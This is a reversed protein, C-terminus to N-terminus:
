VTDDTTTEGLNGTITGPLVGGSLRDEVKSKPVTEGRFFSPSGLRQIYMLPIGIVLAGIGTLFVGGIDWHPPFPMQWQTYGYSPSWYIHCAYFFFAFLILAGLLPLICKLWVTNGDRRGRRVLPIYFWFCALGTLGYYFAIALGLSSISDSLVNSSIQSFAVYFAISALGMTITSWTPTQFKPHVRAFKGPIAKHGAMSLATRATPMITTQTSASASTLVMLVLLKSLFWGLGATGFVSSGLGSLVDGVNDGNALGNGTTGVGAFAQASVTVIGYTVLLLVTSIVAARGPTKSKDKTEENVSVATDWGWYIFVALLLGQTLASFSPVNFPNFWSAAIHISGAPANSGYVKVLAVVALLALMVLELSLLVRQLNVSVEIGIYCILTMVIIWIIGAVETWGTSNALGTAGVLQFGYGGAIQALNAMVIIDAVIIAWGGLWGTKPGFVRAGWTFTTGCDPDIENLGQYGFAIFLMPVFALLMIIPSQLGVAAVVLGLTAALSYAPAVSATGIVISSLLGIASKKLGKDTEVIASPPPVGEATAGTPVATM